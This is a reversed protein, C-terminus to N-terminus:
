CPPSLPSDVVGLLPQSVLRVGPAVALVFPAFAGVGIHITAVLMHMPLCLCPLCIMSPSTCVSLVGPCCRPHRRTETTTAADMAPVGVATRCGEIACVVGPVWAGYAERLLYVPAGPGVSGRGNFNLSHEWVHEWGHHGLPSAAADLM